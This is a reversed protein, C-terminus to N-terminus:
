QEQHLCFPAILHTTPWFSHSTRSRTSGVSVQKGRGIHTGTGFCTNTNCLPATYGLSMEPGNYDTIIQLNLHPHTEQNSM